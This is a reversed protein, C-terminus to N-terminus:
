LEKDDFKKILNYNTKWKSDPHHFLIEARNSDKRIMMDNIHFRKRFAARVLNHETESCRAEFRIAVRKPTPISSVWQAFRDVSDKYAQHTKHPIRLTFPLDKQPDILIEGGRPFVLEHLSKTIEERWDEGFSIQNPDTSKSPISSPSTPVSPPKSAKRKSPSLTSATNVSKPRITSLIFIIGGLGASIVWIPIPLKQNWEFLTIQWEEILPQQVGYWSFLSILLFLISLIKM